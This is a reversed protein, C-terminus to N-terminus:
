DEKKDKTQRIELWQRLRQMATKEPAVKSLLLARQLGGVAKIGKTFTFLVAVTWLVSLWWRTCLVFYTVPVLWYLPVLVVGFPGVQQYYRRWQSRHPHRVQEEDSDYCSLGLQTSLVAKVDAADFGVPNSVYFRSLLQEKEAFREHTWAAMKAEDAPVVSAPNARAAAETGELVYRRLLLHVKKPHHGNILSPENPREGPAHYTYGITFDLVEEVKEPGGLMKVVAILGTTRPNLVHHFKPLGAKAAYAQSREVNSPSLDTGEPFIFVVPTDKTDHFFQVMGEIYKADNEWSRSLFLYRFMEMTWGLVPLQRLEGKLVFRVQQVMGRTRAFFLLMYLWDLRCHHNMIIIKARGPTSPPRLFKDLDVYKEARGDESRIATTYHQELHEQGEDDVITYAVRTGLGFELLGGVWSFYARQLFNHYAASLRYCLRMPGEGFIYKVTFLTLYVWMSAVLFNTVTVALCGALTLGGRLTVKM